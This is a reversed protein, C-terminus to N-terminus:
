CFFSALVSDRRTHRIVADPVAPGARKQAPLSPAALLKPSRVAAVIWDRFAAYEARRAKQSVLSSQPTSMRILRLIHSTEPRRVDIMGGDRLSAFTEAESPRIYDKLDVGSLHCEACSSPNPSKMDVVFGWRMLGEGGEGRGCQPLSPLWGLGARGKM